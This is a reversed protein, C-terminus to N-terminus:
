STLYVDLSIFLDLGVNMVTLIRFSVLLPCAKLAALSSDCRVKLPFAIPIFPNRIFLWLGSPIAVVHFFVTLRPDKDPM